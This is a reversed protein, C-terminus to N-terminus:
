PARRRVRQAAMATAALFFLLDGGITVLRFMIVIVAAQPEDLLVSLQPLMVAERVGIGGPASPTMNGLLWGSVFATAIGPLLDISSGGITLDILLWYVGATALFFVIYTAFGLWVSPGHGLDHADAVFGLRRLASWRVGYRLLFFPGGVAIAVGAALVLPPVIDFIAPRSVLGLLLVLAAASSGLLLTEIVSAVAISAQRWDKDRGLLQRGFFHFVNGPVYKAIQSRGYVEFSDRYTVTGGSGLGGLIIRWGLVLLLSLLGYLFASLAVAVWTGPAALTRGVEDVYTVVRLGVFILALGVLLLGILKVLTRM